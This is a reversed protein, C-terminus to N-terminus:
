NKQSYWFAQLNAHMWINKFQNQEFKFQEYSVKLSLMKIGIQIVKVKIWAWLLTHISVFRSWNDWLTKYENPHSTANLQSKNAQDAEDENLKRSMPDINMPSFEAQTIEDGRWIKVKAEM